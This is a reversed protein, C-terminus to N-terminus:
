TLRTEITQKSSTRGNSANIGSSGGTLQGADSGGTLSLGGSIGQGKNTSSHRDQVSAINLDGGVDLTLSEEAEITAGKINSDQASTISVNDASLQSNNHTKSSSTSQNRDFSTNLNVGTSAGYVTMSAGIKGSQTESQSSHTDQSATINVENAALSLTDNAIM